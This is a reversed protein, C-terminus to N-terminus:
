LLLESVVAVLLLVGVGFGLVAVRRSRDRQMALAAADLRDRHREPTLRGHQSVLKLRPSLTDIPASGSLMTRLPM